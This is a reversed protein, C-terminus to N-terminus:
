VRVEENTEKSKDQGAAIAQSIIAQAEEPTGWYRIEPQNENVTLHELITGFLKGQHTKSTGPQLEVVLAWARKVLEDFREDTIM